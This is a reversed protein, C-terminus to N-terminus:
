MTTFIRSTGLVRFIRYISSVPIHMPPYAPNISRAWVYEPNEDDPYIKKLYAGNETDLIVAHGWPIFASSNIVKIYAIAGDHYEPEMSDGSIPIAYQAGMVPSVTKQCDKLFVSNSTYEVLSNALAASPILPVWHVEKNRLKQLEENTPIAIEDIKYGSPINLMEGDGTLLWYPNIEPSYSLIKSQM